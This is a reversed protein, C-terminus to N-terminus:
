KFLLDRNINLNDPDDSGKKDFPMPELLKDIGYQERLEAIALPNQEPDMAINLPLSKVAAIYATFIKGATRDKLLGQMAEQETIVGESTESIDRAEKGLKSLNDKGKNQEQIKKIDHTQEGAKTAAGRIRDIKAQIRAKGKEWGPGRFRSLQEIHSEM